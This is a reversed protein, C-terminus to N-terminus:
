KRSTIKWYQSYIYSFTYTGFIYLFTHWSSSTDIDIIHTCVKKCVPSYSPLVWAPTYSTMYIRMTIFFILPLDVDEDGNMEADPLYVGTCESCWDSVFSWKPINIHKLFTVFVSFHPMKLVHIFWNEMLYYLTVIDSCLIKQM